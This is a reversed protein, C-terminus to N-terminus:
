VLCDCVLMHGIGYVRTHMGLDLPKDWKLLCPGIELSLCM